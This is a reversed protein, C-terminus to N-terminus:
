CVEYISATIRQSAPASRDSALLATSTNIFDRAAAFLQYVTVATPPMAEAAAKAAADAKTDGGPDKVPYRPIILLALTRLSEVIADMEALREAESATSGLEAAGDEFLENLVVLKGYAAKLAELLEDVYAPPTPTTGDAAAPTGEADLEAAAAAADKLSLMDIVARGLTIVSPTAAPLAMCRRTASIAKPCEDRLAQVTRTAPGELVSASPLGYALMAQMVETYCEIDDIYARSGTATASVRVVLERLTLAVPGDEADPGAETGAWMGWGILALRNLLLALPRLLAPRPLTASGAVEEGCITLASKLYSTIGASFLESCEPAGTSALAALVSFAAILGGIPIASAAAADSAAAAADEDGGLGGEGASVAAQVEAQAAHVAASAVDGLVRLVAQTVGALAMVPLLEDGANSVAHLVHLIHCIVQVCLPINCITYRQWRPHHV